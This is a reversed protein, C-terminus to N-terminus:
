GQRVINATGANAIKPSGWHYLVVNGTGSASVADTSDVAVHNGSGAVSVSTCHGTLTITNQKGSVSLYGDHCPITKTAGTGSVQLTGSEPVASQSDGGLDTRSGVAVLGALALGVAVAAPWFIRPVRRRPKSPDATAQDPHQTTQTM